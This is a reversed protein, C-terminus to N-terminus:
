TTILLGLKEHIISEVDEEELSDLLTVGGLSNFYKMLNRYREVNSYVDKDLKSLVSLISKTIKINRSFSRELLNQAIDQTTFLIKTLEYPDSRNTDKTIEAAWWLRAIGNRTFRKDGGGSLFYRELIVGKPNELKSIDWRKRMYEWFTVHTLYSWLREDIAQSITLNLAKHIIVANEADFLNRSTEPPKLEIKETVIKSRLEFKGDQFYDNIWSEDRKYKEINVSIDSKLKDLASSNFYMLNM